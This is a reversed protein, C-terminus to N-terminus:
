GFFNQLPQSNPNMMAERMRQVDKSGKYESDKLDINSNIRGWSESNNGGEKNQNNEANKEELAKRRNAINEQRKAEFEVMYESAKKIIENRLEMEKQIKQNIKERREDAERKRDAIRKQEEENVGHSGNDLNNNMNLDMNLNIDNKPKSDEELPQFNMNLMDDLTSKPQSQAPQSLFDMNQFGDNNSPNSEKPQDTFGFQDNNNGTNENPSTNFDFEM